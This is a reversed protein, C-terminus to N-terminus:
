SCLISSSAPSKLVRSVEQMRDEVDRRDEVEPLGERAGRAILKTQRLLAARDEPRKASGAVVAITDMLRITVSANTRANQRIQDFAADVFRRLFSVPFANNYKRQTTLKLDQPFKFLRSLPASYSPYSRVAACKGQHGKNTNIGSIHAKGPWAGGV